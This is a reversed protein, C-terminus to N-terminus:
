IYMYIMKSSMDDQNNTLAEERNEGKVQNSGYGIIGIVVQLLDIYGPKVATQIECSLRHLEYHICIPPIKRELNHKQNKAKTQISLLFRPFVFYLLGISHFCPTFQEVLFKTILNM